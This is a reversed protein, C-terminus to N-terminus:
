NKVEALNIENKKGFLGHESVKEVNPRTAIYNLYQERSDFLEPNSEAIVTILASANQKTPNLIYDEYEFSDMVDPSEELMKDIFEMQKKTPKGILVNLNVTKDVGERTAVYNVYGRVSKSAKVHKIKVILRPM